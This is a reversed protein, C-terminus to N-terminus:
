LSRLDGSGSIRSHVKPSGQYYVDGSGSIAVELSESAQTRIDGSGSIHVDVEEAKLALTHIDGSGSIRLSLQECTGGLEIDGSGSVAGSIETATTNFRIDGSGSIALKVAGTHRFTGDSFIGGSGSLGVFDLYPVTINLRIPAHAYINKATKIKWVGGDVTTEILDIINQQATISVSQQNGPPSIFM